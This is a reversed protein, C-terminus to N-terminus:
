NRFYHTVKCYKEDPFHDTWVTYKCASPVHSKYGRKAPITSTNSSSKESSPNLGGSPTPTPTPPIPSTRQHPIPAITPLAPAIDLTMTTSPNFQLQSHQISSDIPYFSETLTTLPQQTFSPPPPGQMTSLFTFSFISGGNM